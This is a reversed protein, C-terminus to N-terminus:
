LDDGIKINVGEVLDLMLEIQRRTLTDSNRLYVQVNFYNEDHLIEIYIDNDKYIGDKTISQVIKDKLIKDTVDDAPMSIVEERGEAIETRSDHLVSHVRCFAQQYREEDEIVTSIDNNKSNLVLEGVDSIKFDM